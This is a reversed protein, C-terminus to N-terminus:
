CEAGRYEYGFNDSSINAQCTIKVIMLILM